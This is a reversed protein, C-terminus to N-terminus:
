HIASPRASLSKLKCAAPRKGTVEIATMNDSTSSATQRVDLETLKSIDLLADVRTHLKAKLDDADAKAM